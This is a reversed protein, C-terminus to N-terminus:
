ITYSNYECIKIKKKNNAIVYQLDASGGVANQHGQTFNPKTTGKAGLIHFSKLGFKIKFVILIFSFLFNTAQKKVRQLLMEIM